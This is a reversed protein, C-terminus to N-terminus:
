NDTGGFDFLFVFIFLYLCSYLYLYRTTQSALEGQIRGATRLVGLDVTAELARLDMKAKSSNKKLIVKVKM